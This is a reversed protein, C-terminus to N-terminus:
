HMLLIKCPWTFKRLRAGTPSRDDESRPALGSTSLTWFFLNRCSCRRLRRYLTAYEAFYYPPIPISHSFTVQGRINVFTANTLLAPNYLSGFDILKGWRYVFAHQQNPYRLEPLLRPQLQGFYIECNGQCVCSLLLRAVAFTLGFPKRMIAM